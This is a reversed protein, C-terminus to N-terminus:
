QFTLPFVRFFRFFVALKMADKPAPTCGRNVTCSKMGTLPTSFGGNECNKRPKPTDNPSYFGKTVLLALKYCSVVTQAAFVFWVTRYSRLAHTGILLRASSTNTESRTMEAPVPLTSKHASAQSCGQCVKLWPTKATMSDKGDERKWSECLWGRM